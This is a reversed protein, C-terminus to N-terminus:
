MREDLYKGTEKHDFNPIMENFIDVILGKDWTKKNRIEKIARIFNDLIREDFEPENKIVGVNKFSKM